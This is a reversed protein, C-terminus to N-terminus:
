QFFSSLNKQLHFGYFFCIELLVKIIEAPTQHPFFIQRDIEQKELPHENPGCIFDITKNLIEKM